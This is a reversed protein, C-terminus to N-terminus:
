WGEHVCVFLFKLKLSVYNWMCLADVYLDKVKTYVLAVFMLIESRTGVCFRRFWFIADRSECPNERGRKGRKNAELFARCLHRRRQPMGIEGERERKTKGRLPFKHNCSCPQPLIEGKTLSNIRSFARNLKTVVFNRRERTWQIPFLLDRNGRNEGKWGQNRSLESNYGWFFIYLTKRGM